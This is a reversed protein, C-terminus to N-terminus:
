KCLEEIILILNPNNNIRQFNCKVIKEADVPALGQSVLNEYAKQCVELAANRIQNVNDFPM